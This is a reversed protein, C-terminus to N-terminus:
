RAAKRTPEHNPLIQNDDRTAYTEGGRTPFRVVLCHLNEYNSGVNSDDQPPVILAAYELVRGAIRLAWRRAHELTRGAVELPM